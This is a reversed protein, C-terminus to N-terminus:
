VEARRMAAEIGDLLVTLGVEFTEKAEQELYPTAGDEPRLTKEGELRIM